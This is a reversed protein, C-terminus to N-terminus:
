AATMFHHIGCDCQRMAVRGFADEEIAVVQWQHRHRQTELQWASDAARLGRRLAIESKPSM